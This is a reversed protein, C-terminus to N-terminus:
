EQLFHLMFHSGNRPSYHFNFGCFLQQLVQLKNLTIYHLVNRITEGYPYIDGEERCGRSLLRIQFICMTFPWSPSPIWIVPPRPDLREEWPIMTAWTSSPPAVCLYIAKMQLTKIQQRPLLLHQPSVSWDADWAYAIMLSDQTGEVISMLRWLWQSVRM